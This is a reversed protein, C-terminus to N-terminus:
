TPKLDIILSMVIKYRLAINFLLGIKKLFSRFNCESFLHTKRIISNCLFGADICPLEILKKTKLFSEGPKALKEFVTLSTAIFRIRMKESKIQNQLFFPNKIFIQICPRMEFACMIFLQVTRM